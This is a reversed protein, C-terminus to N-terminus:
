QSWICARRYVLWHKILPATDLIAMAKFIQHEMPSHPKLFKNKCLSSRKGLKISCKEVSAWTLNLTRQEGSGKQDQCKDTGLRASPILLIHSTQETDPYHSQSPHRTMTGSAQNGM